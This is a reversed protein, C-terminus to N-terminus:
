AVETYEDLIYIKQGENTQYVSVIYNDTTVSSDYDTITLTCDDGNITQVIHYIDIATINTVVSEYNTVDYTGNETVTLTGSPTKITGNDIKTLVSLPSDEGYEIEIDKNEAVDKIKDKIDETDGLIGILRTNLEDIRAM